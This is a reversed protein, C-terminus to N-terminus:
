YLIMIIQNINLSQISEYHDNSLISLQKIHWFIHPLEQPIRLHTHHIINTSQWKYTKNKNKVGNDGCRLQLDM